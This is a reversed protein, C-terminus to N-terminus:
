DKETKKKAVGVMAPRLLREHLTWGPQMVEVITGPDFDNTEKEFMAQHVNYDFADGMPDIRTINHNNFVQKLQELTMEVGLIFNKLEDTLAEKNKPISKVASELSDVVSLMERAFSLHGYKRSQELDKISRRRTNEAEALARKKDDIATELERKLDNEESPVNDDINTNEVSSEDIESSSPAELDESDFKNNKNKTM